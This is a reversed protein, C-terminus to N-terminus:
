AQPLSVQFVAGRGHNAAKVEGGHLEVLTRVIALGLGSGGGARSRSGEARYFRDFARGLTEPSLGPGDDQVSLVVRAEHTRVSLRVRGGAHGYRLANDLLNVLVQELRDPDALVLAREVPARLQLQVGKRLARESFTEVVRAALSAVDTPRRTLTLRKADALSLTRLDDVLRSLREAQRGLKALEAHEFPVIGDQMADLHGQLITLPTRLEHAVDAIMAQREHELGELSAAMGNFHGVLAATEDRPNVGKPLAARASLDGAAIHAAARSVESIPRLIRQALVLALVVSVLLSLAISAVFTGARLRAFRADLAQLEAANDSLGQALAEFEPRLAEAPAGAGLAEIIAGIPARVSEPYQELQRNFLYLQFTALLMTVLAVAIITLSLRTALRNM